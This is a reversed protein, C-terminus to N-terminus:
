QPAPQLWLEVSPSCLPQLQISLLYLQFIKLWSFNPSLCPLCAPCVYLCAPCSLCSLCVPLCPLCPLSSTLQHGPFISLVVFCSSRFSSQARGTTVRYGTQENGTKRLKMLERRLWTNQINVWICGLNISQLVCFRERHNLKNNYYVSQM